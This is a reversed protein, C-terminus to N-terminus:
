RRGAPVLGRSSRASAGAFPPDPGSSSRKERKGAVAVDPKPKAKPKAGAASAIGAIVMCGLRAVQVASDCKRM